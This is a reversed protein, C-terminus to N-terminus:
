KVIKLRTNQLKNERDIKNMQEILSDLRMNSTYNKDIMTTSTGLMKAIITSTVGKDLM